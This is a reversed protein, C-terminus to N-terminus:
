LVKFSKTQQTDTVRIIVPQLLTIEQKPNYNTQSSLLRGMLDYVEIVSKGELGLIFFFLLLFLIFRKMLKM